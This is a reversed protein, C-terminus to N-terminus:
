FNESFHTMEGPHSYKCLPENKSRLNWNCQHQRLSRLKYQAKLKLSKDLLQKASVKTATNLILEGRTAYQPFGIFILIASQAM